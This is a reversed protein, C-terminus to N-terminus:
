TIASAGNVIEIIEQTIAGQRLQNYELTLKGIIEDSNKSASDMSMVRASQESMSADIMAGFIISALYHPVIEEILKEFKPEWMYEVKMGEEQKVDIPLLKEAVPYQDIMSKFETYVLYLQTIEGTKYLNCARRAIVHAEDYFPRESVGQYNARMEIGARKFAGVIRRGIGIVSVEKFDRAVEIAKKAVNINYGGCLGRDSSIVILGVKEEESQIFYPHELKENSSVISTMIEGFNSIYDRTTEAYDMVSQVKSSSVLKMSNTIQKTGKIGRIRNQISQLTEM